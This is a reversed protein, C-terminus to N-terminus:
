KKGRDEQEQFMKRLRDQEGKMSEKLTKKPKEALKREREKKREERKREREEILPNVEVVKEEEFWRSTITTELFFMDEAKKSQYGILKAISANMRKRNGETLELGPPLLNHLDGFTFKEKRLLRYIDLELKAPYIDNYSILEVEEEYFQIERLLMKYHKKINFFLKMKIKNKEGIVYREFVTHYYIKLNPHIRSYNLTCRIEEDNILIYVPRNKIDKLNNMQRIQDRHLVFHIRKNDGRGNIYCPVEGNSELHEYTDLEHRLRVPQIIIKQKELLNNEVKIVDIKKKILELFYKNKHTEANRKNAQDIKLEEETKELFRFNRIPRKTIFKKLASFIKNKLM